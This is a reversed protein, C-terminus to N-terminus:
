ISILYNTYRFINALFISCIILIMSHFIVQGGIAGFGFFEAKIQCRGLLGGGWVLFSLTNKM